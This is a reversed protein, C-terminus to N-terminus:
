GNLGSEFAALVESPVPNRYAFAEDACLDEFDTDTTLLADAEHTRALSVLLSDYVDHNKSTSVEYADLLTERDASIIQVPQRLFRQVANRARHEDVEYWTTLVYQARLPFYDFVLLVGEGSFGPQVHPFVHEHGPHDSLVAIVIANIDILLREGNAESTGM